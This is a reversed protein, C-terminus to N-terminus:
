KLALSLFDGFNEGSFLEKIMNFTDIPPQDAIEQSKKNV